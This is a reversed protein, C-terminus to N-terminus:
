LLLTVIERLSSLTFLPVIAKKLHRIKNCRVIKNGGLIEPKRIATGLAGPFFLAKRYHM